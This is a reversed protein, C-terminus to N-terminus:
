VLLQTYSQRTTRAMFGPLAAYELKPLWHPKTFSQQIVLDMGDLQSRIHARCDNRKPYEGITPKPERQGTM